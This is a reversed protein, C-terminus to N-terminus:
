PLLDRIDLEVGPRALPAVVDGAGYTTVTRYGDEAPDRYVELRAEPVALVWYEPINGRAYLRQKVTRDQELTTEDSVEVVLVAAAPPALKYARIAGTVVALDPQPESYDDIALPDRIRVHCDAFVQRLHNAALNAATVDRPTQCPKALLEGEVLELRADPEFVGADVAREYELRSLRYGTTTMPPDAKKGSTNLPRAAQCRSYGARHLAAVLERFGYADETWALILEHWEAEAAWTGLIARQRDTPTEARVADYFEASTPRRPWGARSKALRLRVTRSHRGTDDAGTPAKISQRELPSAPTDAFRESPLLLPDPRYPTEALIKRLRLPLDADGLEAAPPEEEREGQEPRYSTPVDLM